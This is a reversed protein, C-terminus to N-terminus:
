KAASAIKRRRRDRAFEIKNVRDQIADHWEGWSHMKQIKQPLDSYGTGTWEPDVPQFGFEQVWAKAHETAEGRFTIKTTKM